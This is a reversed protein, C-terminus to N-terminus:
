NRQLTSESGVSSTGEERPKRFFVGEGDIDLLGPPAPNTAFFEDVAAACGEFTGYDDIIVFGDPAVLPYLHELCEKTSEYLDGDLHLLAIPGVHTAAEPVTDQFWGEYFTARERRIGLREFLREVGEVSAGRCAGTAELAASQGDDLDMDPHARRFGDVVEVDKESPPPLGEFSDFLHMPRSAGGVKEGALAMLAAGGGSWVGCEVISGPIRDLEVQRACDYVNFLRRPPMM